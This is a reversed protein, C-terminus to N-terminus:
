VDTMDLNAASCLLGVWLDRLLGSPCCIRKPKEFIMNTTSDIRPIAMTLASILNTKLENTQLYNNEYM